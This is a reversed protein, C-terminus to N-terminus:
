MGPVPGWDKNESADNESQSVSVLQLPGEIIVALTIKSVSCMPFTLKM